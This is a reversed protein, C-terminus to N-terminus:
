GPMGTAAKKKQVFTPIIDVDHFSHFRIQLRVPSPFAGNDHKPSELHESAGGRQFSLLPRLIGNCRTVNACM